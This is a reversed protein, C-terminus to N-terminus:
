VEKLLENFNNFFHINKNEIHKNYSKLPVKVCMGHEAYELAHKPSDDIAFLISGSDYYESNICWRLKEPSFDIRDFNINFSKLWWYTDYFIKLNEKPRATLLQIWFGKKRLEDIFNKAELTLPISKFHRENTFTEFVKEPNHGAEIIENVFYYQTSNNDVIINFKNKLFYSFTERFNAIVDDIDIIVVPQGEWKKNLIEHEIDLFIDKELFSLVVDDSNVEWLNLISMVYRLVDISSYILDDENPKHNSSRMKEIMRNISNYSNLALDKSISRKDEYSLEEGFKKNNYKLQHKMMEEFNM